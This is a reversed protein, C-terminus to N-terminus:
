ILDRFIEVNCFRDRLWILVLVEFSVLRHNLSGSAFLFLNVEMGEHM